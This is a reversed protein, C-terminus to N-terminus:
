NQEPEIAEILGGSLGRHSHLKYRGFERIKSRVTQFHLNFDKYTKGIAISFAWLGDGRGPLHGKAGLPWDSAELITGCPTFGMSVQEAPHREELPFMQIGSEFM